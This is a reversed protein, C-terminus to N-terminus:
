DGEPALAKSLIERMKVIAEESYGEQKFAVRGDPSVLFVTPIQEVGYGQAAVKYRDVLVKLNTPRAEFFPKVVTPGATDTAFLISTLGKEGFDRQIKELEPLELKCPECDTAFFDILLWGAGIVNKSFVFSGDLGPNVFVSAEDDLDIAFAAGAAITLVLALALHKKM